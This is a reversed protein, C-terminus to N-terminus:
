KTWQNMAEKDQLELILLISEAGAEFAEFSCFPIRWSTNQPSLGDMVITNEGFNVRIRHPKLRNILSITKQIHKLEKEM